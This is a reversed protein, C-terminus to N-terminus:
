VTLVNIWKDTWKDRDSIISLDLVKLLEKQAKIWNLQVAKELCLSLERSDQKNYRLAIEKPILENYGGKKCLILPKILFASQFISLGFSEIGKSLTHCYIDIGNIFCSMNVFGIYKISCNYGSDNVQKLIKELFIIEKEYLAEGAIIFTVKTTTKQLFQIAADVFISIGREETIRCATGVVLCDNLIGHSKRFENRYLNNLEIADICNYIVQHEINLYEQLKNISLKSVGVIKKCYKNFFYASIKDKIDFFGSKNTIVHQCVILPYGSIISAPGIVGASYFSNGIIVDPDIFALTESIDKEKLKGQFFFGILNVYFSLISWFNFFNIRDVNSYYLNRGESLIYKAYSENRDSVYTVKIGKNVLGKYLVENFSKLGGHENGGIHILVHKLKESM